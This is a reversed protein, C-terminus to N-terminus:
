ESWPDTHGPLFLDYLDIPIQETLHPTGLGQELPPELDAPAATRNRLTNKHRMFVVRRPRFALRSWVSSRGAPLNKGVRRTYCTRCSPKHRGRGTNVVLGHHLTAHHRMIYCSPTDSTIDCATTDYSTMGLLRRRDTRRASTSTRTCGFHPVCTGAPARPVDPLPRRAHVASIHFM